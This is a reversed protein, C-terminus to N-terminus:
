RRHRRRGSGGVELKGTEDAAWLNAYDEDVGKSLAYPSPYNRVMTERKPLEPDTGYTAASSAYVFRQVGAKAAAVLMNLTGTINTDHNKLPDKMSNPVSVMAAEHFVINMGECCKECTNKDRIDGFVFELRRTIAADRLNAPLERNASAGHSDTDLNDLVRVLRAGNELLADVIHSGIFGAGGTVLIAKGEYKRGFTGKPIINTRRPYINHRAGGRRTARRRRNRLNGRTKRPMEVKHQYM